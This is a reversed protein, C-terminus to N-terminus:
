ALECLPLDRGESLHPGSYKVFTTFISLSNMM